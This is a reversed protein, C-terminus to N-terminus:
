PADNLLHIVSSSYFVRKGKFFKLSGNGEEMEVERQMERSEEM